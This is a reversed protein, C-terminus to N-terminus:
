PSAWWAIRWSRTWGGRLRSHGLKLNRTLPTCGLGVAEVQELPTINAVGWTFLRGRDDVAASLFFGATISEIRELSTIRSPVARANQDGHGLMGGGWRGWSYVEGEASLALVHFYGTAISVIRWDLMSPVLTPLSIQSFCALHGM